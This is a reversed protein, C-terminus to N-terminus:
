LLVLDDRHVVEREYAAGLERKLDKSSRGLLAPLEGSDFNVLGRAVPVGDPGAIDVPDGAHFTGVCVPSGPPWCRPAASPSRPSRATTSCCRASRSPRTRWGCCGPRGAGVPPTSCRASRSAPWRTRSGSPPPSSWRSGPEPPSGPPTSSPRCAAPASGPRGPRGSGSPRSTPPTASRPCWCQQGPAGPDADYLGDVDSLLVLLDAHVLHAVLAALRDNDGFRIETTAVTDNENVIPLVGLELLKAFTQHANRYHSRRTVDDVTLLVQGAVVGHRALEETYRHVLLGQGVSAAAQQAPLSRPRRKLRLPALGAAIAGSSVLVM